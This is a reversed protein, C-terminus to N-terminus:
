LVQAVQNARRDLQQYSLTAGHFDAAVAEPQARVQEQFVHHILGDRPYARTTALLAQQRQISDLSAVLRLEQLPRPVTDSLAECLRATAQLLRSALEEANIGEACQMSISFAEGVSDVSVVIPYNAREESLVVHAGHAALGESDGQGHRYNLVSTFLPLRPDIASCRQAVVLPAQEHELLEILTAHTDLAAQRATTNGVDIRVPLTNVFVGMVNSSAGTMQLRGSLVTGFVVTNQDCLAALVQAWALHFVAAPTIGLARARHHLTTSLVDPVTVSIETVEAGTGQVDLVGYPATSEHIDSLQARFHAEHDGASADRIVSIFNRYQLPESLAAADGRLVIQVEELLLQLTVHDCVIHHLLLVLWQAEGQMDSAIHAHLLPARRLDIRMCRPDVRQMLQELPARRPDLAIEHVPLTVSRHVVQVPARLSEWHISTRLIDHRAMVQELAVLFAQLCQLDDFRLVSRLLYADGEGGLLHHFLVGEQLPGLPYIDQIGVAGERVAAVLTDIETQELSALPLLDPTIRGSGDIKSPPVEFSAQPTQQRVSEALAVLSLANFVTRVDAQLGRHRLQEIVTIALLSHGGLEFFNDHRGVQELGLVEQWVAAIALETEGVPAEYGRAAVASADPAPLAARDLKGNSTLPWHHVRVFAAPVMYDALHLLLHDRLEAASPDSEPETIVYGVLRKDGPSDERALVVAERVGDCAQLRAEIEALEIRFGRIKVQFDNRGVYQLEGGPLWRGLDGTRYLRASPDSSYPDPLFREATLEPRNLYGRAIGDGGVYLEGTVGIPVPQQHPDLVLIRLDSLPRGILSGQGGQVDRREIRRFTAHVTIETIGYMNILQTQDPDNRAIWPALMPLDLAEGGFIVYRLRHTATSDAEAAILQRFASPTQNLVTVGQEILLAHFDRPSRSVAAPVVVLRGGYLLAGWIEWVSFDFAFSHFLTWVDEPGFQFQADTAAFLRAVQG